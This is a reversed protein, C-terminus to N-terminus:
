TPTALAVRTRAGNGLVTLARVRFAYETNATLGTVTYSTTDADSGVIDAWNESDQRYQWGIITENGPSDWSLTVERVGAVVAFNVPPTVTAIEQEIGAPIPVARHITAFQIDRPVGTVVTFSRDQNDFVLVDPDIEQAAVLYHPLTGWSRLALGRAKLLRRYLQDGMPVYTDETPFSPAFPAQNFGVGAPHFGFYVIDANLVTPRRLQLWEGIYDLWIGVAFDLLMMLRLSQAPVVLEDRVIGLIADMWARFLPATAWQSILLDTTVSLTPITPVFPLTDDLVLFSAVTILSGSATPTPVAATGGFLVPGTVIFRGTATPVPVTAEGGIAVALGIVALTGSATPAPVSANGAIDVSHGTVTFTGVATPAAVSATGAIEVAAIGDDLTLTVIGNGLDFRWLFLANTDDPTWSYPDQGNVTDSDPHNIGEFVIDDGDQEAMTFASVYTNFATTFDPGAILPDETATRALRMELFPESFNFGFYRLYATEGNAILASDLLIAGEWAGASFTSGFPAAGLNIVQRAM